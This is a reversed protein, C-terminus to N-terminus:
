KQCRVNFWHLNQFIYIVTKIYPHILFYMVCLVANLKNKREWYSHILIMVSFSVYVSVMGTTIKQRKRKLFCLLVTFGGIIILVALVIVILKWVVLKCSVGNILDECEFLLSCPQAACENIDTFYYIFFVLKYIM